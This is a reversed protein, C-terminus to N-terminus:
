RRLTNQPVATVGIGVSSSKRPGDGVSPEFVLALVLCSSRIHLISRLKGLFM